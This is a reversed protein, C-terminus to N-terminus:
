IGKMLKRAKDTNETGYTRYIMGNVAKQGRGIREAIIVSSYGQLVMEHLLQKEEDTWKRHNEAKVPRDKIGLTSMRRVVAGVTRHLANAIEDYSYSYTKLMDRLRKDEEATWQTSKVACKKLKDANRQTEVWDPEPGLSFREIRSFDLFARHEEAWEWFDKLYIIKFRCNFVKKYKVPLGRNKVCSTLSYGGHREGKIIKLLQQYTIYEGNDLFAGLGLRYVKNKIADESRGLLQCITKVSVTGWKEALLDCEAQTWNKNKGMATVKQTRGMKNVETKAKNPM